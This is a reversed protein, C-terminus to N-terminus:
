FPVDDDPVQDAVTPDVGVWVEVEPLVEGIRSSPAPPDPDDVQAVLREFPGCWRTETVTPTAAGCGRGPGCCEAQEHPPCESGEELVVVRQHASPRRKAHSWKGCGKCRWMEVIEEPVSM